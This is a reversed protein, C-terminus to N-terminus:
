TSQNAREEILTAMRRLGVTSFLVAAAFAILGLHIDARSILSGELVLVTIAIIFVDLMSWKSLSALLRVLRIAQPHECPVAFWVYTCLLTKAAPVLVSFAGVILFLFYNGAQWFAWVAQLLSYDKRILFNGVSLAPLTLGLALLVLSLILMPGIWQDRGQVTMALSGTREM